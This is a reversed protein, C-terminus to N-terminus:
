YDIFQFHMVINMYWQLLDYHTLSLFVQRYYVIDLINRTDAYKIIAEAFVKLGVNFDPCNVRQKQLVSYWKNTCSLGNPHNINLWENPQPIYGSAREEINRKALCCREILETFIDDTNKADKFYDTIQLKFRNREGEHFDQTHWFMAHCFIWFDETRKTKKIVDFMNGQEMRRLPLKSAGGKTAALFFKETFELRCRECCFDQSENEAEFKIFCNLCINKM